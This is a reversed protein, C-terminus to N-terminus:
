ISKDLKSLIINFKEKLNEPIMEKTISEIDYGSFEVDSSENIQVKPIVWLNKYVKSLEDIRKICNTEMLNDKDVYIEIYDNKDYPGCEFIDDNYLRYFRISEVNEEFFLKGNDIIYFGRPSNADAFDLAYCSGLNKVHGKIYPIHTHGSYININKYPIHSSIIDAHTYINKINLQKIIRSTNETNLYEYWPLFLDEGDVYFDNYLIKIDLDRFFISLSCIEDSEPSYYDHNGAVIIMEKCEKRIDKFAQIVKTAIYTSITSRSDFVDGLHIVRVDRKCNKIYPIFQNYIFDLQSNLWILSNQRVGFHTDTLLVDIM